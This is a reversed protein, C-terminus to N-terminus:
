TLLALSFSSFSDVAMKATAPNAAPSHPAKLNTFITPPIPDSIAATSATLPANTRNDPAIIAFGIPAITAAAVAPKTANATFPNWGAILLASIKLPLIESIVSCFSLGNMFTNSSRSWCSKPNSTHSFMIVWSSTFSNRTFKDLSVFLIKSSSSASRFLAKCSKDNNFYTKVSSSYLSKILRLVLM